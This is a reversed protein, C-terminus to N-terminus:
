SRNQKYQNKIYVRRLAANRVAMHAQTTRLTGTRVGESNYVLLFQCYFSSTICCM